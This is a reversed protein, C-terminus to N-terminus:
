NVKRMIKQTNSGRKKTYKGNFINEIITISSGWAEVTSSDWATVTSSDWAEVTSSGWAEVTSSGRATVTSDNACIVYKNRVEHTGELFLLDKIKNKFFDRVSSSCDIEDFWDPLTEEEDVKFQWKNLDHTLENYDPTLEVRVFNRNMLVADKLKHKKIITEHSHAQEDWLVKKGKTWICSIFECM